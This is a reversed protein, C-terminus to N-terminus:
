NLIVKFNSHIDGSYFELMKDKTDFKLIVNAVANNAKYFAFVKEGESLYPNFEYLFKKAKSSFEIGKLLGEKEKSHIMYCSFYFRNRPFLTNLRFKKNIALEVCGAIMDVNTNLFTARPIYNGGSRPGIENIFPEGKESFWLDINIPGNQFGTAIIVEDVKKKAKELLTKNHTSPFTEGWPALHKGNGYFHGDGFDVFILRGNEVFGDGCVQKGKKPVFAEVIIRKSFSEAFAYNVANTVNNLNHIESIGKSGSSDVPKIVVPLECSDIYKKIENKKEISFSKHQVPQIGTENLFKRFQEKNVLIKVASLPNGNLELEGAVYAAVPSSVDSGYTLIADIKEKKAMALIAEMDLTSINYWKHAIKHGPNEPRNDCTIVYYGQSLAYKIPPLQFNAAGLILIKKSM